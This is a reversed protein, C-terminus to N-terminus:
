KSWISLFYNLEQDLDSQAAVTQSLEDIVLERLRRRLRHIAMTVAPPTLGTAAALNAVGHSSGEAVAPKLQDFLSEKGRQRQEQRLAALARTWITQAWQRDFAAEPSLAEAADAAFMQEAIEIDLPLIEAEGGRKEAQLKRAESVLYNRLCGALFRRFPGDAQQIREFGNRSLFSALFGQVIDKSEEPDCGNRRVYAYLPPWYIRCLDNLAKAADAADGPKRLRQILSWRTAPFPGGQESDRM